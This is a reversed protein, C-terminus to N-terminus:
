GYKPALFYPTIIAFCRQFNATSAPPRTFISETDQGITVVQNGDRWEIAGHHQWHTGAFLTGAFLHWHSGLRLLNLQECIYPEYDHAMQRREVEDIQTLHTTQEPTVTRIMIEFSVTGQRGSM